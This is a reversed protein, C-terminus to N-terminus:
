IWSMAALDVVHHCRSRCCTQQKRERKGIRCPPRSIMHQPHHIPEAHHRRNPAVVHRGLLPVRETLVRDEIWHVFGGVLDAILWGVILQAALLLVVNM